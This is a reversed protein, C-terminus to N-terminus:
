GPASPANGSSDIDCQALRVAPKNIRHLQGHTGLILEAVALDEPTTVKLNEYSGLFMRVPQGLREVMTADDTVDDQWRQHADWLLSFRFVQPTQAAWLGERPPTGTVLGQASVEKITDKVPVGAVAAGLERVADLGGNCSARTWAHAPATTSWLGSLRGRTRPPHRRLSNWAWGSRTRAGRGALAFM